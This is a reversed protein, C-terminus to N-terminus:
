GLTILLFNIISETKDVYAYGGSRISEFDQIQGVM